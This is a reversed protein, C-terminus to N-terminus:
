CILRKACTHTRKERNKEHTSAGRQCVNGLINSLVRQLYLHVLLRVESTLSTIRDDQNRLLTLIEDLKSSAAHTAHNRSGLSDELASQMGGLDRQEHFGQYAPHLSGYYGGRGAM